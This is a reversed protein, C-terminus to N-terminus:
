LVYKSFDIQHLLKECKKMVLEKDVIIRRDQLDPAEFSLDETVKGVVFRLRRAGINEVTKNLVFSIRAIEEISDEDFVVDVGETEFLAAHQQILNNKTFNLIHKFDEENLKQLEVRIPLRGQLEPLLDSPKSNHFSGTGIFLVHDTKCVGHDTQVTTGEIISLLEKQVGEGKGTKYDNNFSSNAAIKDIEDIVVIGSEQARNIAKKSVDINDLHKELESDKLLERAEYVPAKMKREALPTKTKQHKHRKEIPIPKRVVFDVMINELEGRRLRQKYEEKKSSAGPIRTLLIDEVSENIHDAVNARAREKELQVTKEVLDKICDEASPGVIGVETYRTAEVKVFPADLLKSLRRAIETKGSGTPGIMLINSPTIEDHIDGRLQTRRWRNRLAIAVAKKADTQGVIYQDLHEVIAKPTLSEVLNDRLTTLNNEDVVFVRRGTQADVEVDELVKRKKRNQLSGFRFASLIRNDTLRRFSSRLVSVKMMM